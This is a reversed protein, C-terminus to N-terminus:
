PQLSTSRQNKAWTLKTLLCRKKSGSESRSIVKIQCSSVAYSVVINCQRGKLDHIVKLRRFDKTGETKSPPIVKQYRQMQMANMKFAHSGTQVKLVDDSEQRLREERARREERVSRRREKQWHQM